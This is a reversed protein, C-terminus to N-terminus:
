KEDIRKELELQRQRRRKKMDYEKYKAPNKWLLFLGLTILIPQVLLATAILIGVYFYIWSSNYSAGLFSSILILVALLILVLAERFPSFRLEGLIQLGPNM